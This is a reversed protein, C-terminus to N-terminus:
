LAMGGDVTIVAGNIYDNDILHCVAAAVADPSGFRQLATESRIQEKMDDELVSTMPTDIFGPAVANVRVGRPGLEFAFQKTLAELAAKTARYVASGILAKRALVSSINVIMGGEARAMEKGFDRMLFLPSKLNIDVLKDFSNESINLAPEHPRDIGANNVLIYPTGAKLASALLNQRGANTSLDAQILFSDPIEASLAEARERNGNYHLALRLAGESAEHIKKAVARGIGGSAGTVVAIDKM